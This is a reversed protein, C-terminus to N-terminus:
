HLYVNFSSSFKQHSVSIFIDLRFITQLKKRIISFVLHFNLQWFIRKVLKLSPVLNPVFYVPNSYFFYVSEVNHLILVTLTTSVSNAYYTSSLNKTGGSGTPKFSSFCHMVVATALTSSSISLDTQVSNSQRISIQRTVFPECMSCRYSFFM